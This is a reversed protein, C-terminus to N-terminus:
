DAKPQVFVARQERTPRNYTGRSSMGMQRVMRKASSPRVPGAWAFM